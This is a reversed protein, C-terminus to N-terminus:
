HRGAEQGQLVIGQHDRSYKSGAWWARKGQYGVSMYRIRPPGLVSSVQRDELAKRYTREAVADEDGRGEEEPLKPGCLGKWAEDELELKGEWKSRTM